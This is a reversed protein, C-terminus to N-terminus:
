PHINETKKTVGLTSNSSWMTVKKKKKFMKLSKWVTELTICWKASRVAIHSELKETDNIISNNDSQRVTATRTPTNRMITKIHMKSIVLLTSYRKMHKNAMQIDEKSFKRNVAKAWKFIQTIQRLTRKHEPTYTGQQVFSKCINEGMINDLKITDKGGWCYQSMIPM